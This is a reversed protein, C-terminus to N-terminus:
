CTMEDRGLDDSVSGRVWLGFASSKSAVTRGGPKQGNKAGKAAPTLPKGQSEKNSFEHKTLSRKEVAGLTFSHLFGDRVFGNATPTTPLSERGCCFAYPLHASFLEPGTPHFIRFTSALTKTAMVAM